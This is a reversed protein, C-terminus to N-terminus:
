SAERLMLNKNENGATDESISLEHLLNRVDVYSKLFYTAASINSGVKITIAEEPMAKFTDEDTHDDGLALVFDYQERELWRQAAKGKNVAISKIEIVKDGQLMQLGRDA